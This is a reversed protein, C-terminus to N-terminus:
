GRTAEQQCDDIRRPAGQFDAIAKERPTRQHYSSDEEQQKKFVVAEHALTQEDGEKGAKVLEELQQVVDAETLSIYWFSGLVVHVLGLAEAAKEIERTYSADEPRAWLSIVKWTDRPELPYFKEIFLRRPWIVAKATFNEPAETWKKELQEM